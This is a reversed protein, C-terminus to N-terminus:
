LGRPWFMTNIVVEKWDEPDITKEDFTEVLNLKTSLKLNKPFKSYDFKVEEGSAKMTLFSAYPGYLIMNKFGAAKMTKIIIQTEMSLDGSESLLVPLDITIVTDPKSVRKVLTYFESSYLKALEHGNPFPFDILIMDFKLQSNKRLYSVADGFILNVRSDLNSLSGENLRSIVEHNKSWEVIGEDLEVMTISKIEPIKRLERLLIGDGAGLILVNEPIKDIINLGGYVMSEHYVDTSYIDFQPKRNLYLTSNETREFDEMAPETFLDITQYTTKVRELHGYSKIVNIVQGIRSLENFKMKTGIYSSKITYYELTPYIKNIGILLGLPLALTLILAMRNERMGIILILGIIQIFGVITIQLASNVGTATCYVIFPGALLPGLYNIAILVENKIGSARKLILPLQSGGLVGAAFSFVAAISLLFQLAGKGELSTGIPSFHLFCFILVLQLVPILPLLLVSLWELGFLTKIQKDPTVKDGFYSGLGLGLLYPGMSLCQALIEEGTFDSITSAIIMAYCMTAFSTTFTIVPFYFKM